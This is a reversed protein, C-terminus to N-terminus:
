GQGSDSSAGATGVVDIGCAAAWLFATNFLAILVAGFVDAIALDKGQISKLFLFIGILAALVAPVIRSDAWDASVIAQVVKWVGLVVASSGSFSALSQVTVFAPQDVQNAAAAGTTNADLPQDARASLTLLSAM